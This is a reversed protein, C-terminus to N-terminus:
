PLETKVSLSPVEPYELKFLDNQENKAFCYLSNQIITTRTEYDLDFKENYIERFKDVRLPDYELLRDNEAGCTVLNLGFLDRKIDVVRRSLHDDIELKRIKACVAKFQSRSEDREQELRELANPNARGQEHEQEIEDQLSLLRDVKWILRDRAGPKNIM